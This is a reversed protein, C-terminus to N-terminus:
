WMLSETTNDRTLCAINLLAIVYCPSYQFHTSCSDSLAEFIVKLVQYQPINNPSSNVLHKDKAEKLHVVSLSPGVFGFPRQLHCRSNRRCLKPSGRVLGASACSRGGCWHWGGSTCPPQCAVRTLGACLAPWIWSPRHWTRIHPRCRFQLGQRQKPGGPSRGRQPFYTAVFWLLLQLRRKWFVM